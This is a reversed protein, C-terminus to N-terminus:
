PMDRNKIGIKINYRKKTGKTTNTVKHINKKNYKYNQSYEKYGIIMITVKCYIGKVYESSLLRDVFVSGYQIWHKIVQSHENLLRIIVFKHDFCTAINILM